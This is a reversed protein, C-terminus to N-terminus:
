ARSARIADLLERVPRLADPRVFYAPHRDETAFIYRAQKAEHGYVYGRLDFAPPNSVVSVSIDKDSDKEYVILRDGKSQSSVTRVQIAGGDYRLRIDSAGLDGIEGNYYAGFAKAVAAEGLAGEIHKTWPDALKYSAGYDKRGDRINNVQRILGVQAYVLIESYSLTVIM